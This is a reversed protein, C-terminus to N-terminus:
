KGSFCPTRREFLAMAAERADESGILKQIQDPIAAIAPKWGDYVASRAHELAARVALPAQSAMRSAIEVARAQQTGPEVVEQVLGLRHAEDVALDDGTLVYRMATSWGTAQVFRFVGGGAPYIGVRVERLAFVTGAAAICTDAALALEFGLTFCRGQVACVLPKKRHVGAVGWPDIATEPFPREGEIFRPAVDMLDLGTTFDPGKATLVTAGVADDSEARGLAEALGQFMALNFANRKEARAFTVVAVHDRKEYEILSM